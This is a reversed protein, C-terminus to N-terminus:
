SIEVLFLDYHLLPLHTIRFPVSTFYIVKSILEVQGWYVEGDTQNKGSQSVAAETRASTMAPRFLCRCWRCTIRDKSTLFVEIQAVCFLPRTWVASHPVLASRVTSVRSFFAFVSGNCAEFSVSLRWVNSSRRRPHRVDVRYRSSVTNHFVLRATAAPYRTLCRLETDISVWYLAASGTM